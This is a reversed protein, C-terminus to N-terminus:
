SLFYLCVHCPSLMPLCHIVVDRGSNISAFARLHSRADGASIAVAMLLGGGDKQAQLALM